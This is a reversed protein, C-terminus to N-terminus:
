VWNYNFSISIRDENTVASPVEHRLWSEFLVLNGAKAKYEATQRNRQSCRDKKPPAAMFSSMRPDEFKIGAASRPVQVYYTGSIASLPHIHGSHATHAPMINLWCDSMVLSAHGLEMELHEAFARVHKSIKKELLTFTSSMKHLEDLSAFSSYGGVYNKKSWTQGSVDYDRLQYCEKALERNFKALSSKQLPACYVFTPFWARISM